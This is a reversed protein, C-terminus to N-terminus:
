GSYSSVYEPPSLEDELRALREVIIQIQAQIERSRLENSVASANIAPSPIINRTRQYPEGLALTRRIKEQTTAAPPYNLASATPQKLSPPPLATVSFDQRRSRRSRRVLTVVIVAMVLTMAGIVGGIISPAKSSTNSSSRGDRSVLTEIAETTSKSSTLTPASESESESRPVSRQESSLSVGTPSAIVFITQPITFQSELHSEPSGYLAHNILEFEGTMTPTLTYEGRSLDRASALDGLAVLTGLVGIYGDLSSDSAEKLWTYVFPQSVTVTAPFPTEIRFATARPLFPVIHILYGFLISALSM